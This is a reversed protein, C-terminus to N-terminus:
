FAVTHMRTIGVAAQVRAYAPQLLRCVLTMCCAAEQMGAYHLVCLAPICAAYSCIFVAYARVAAKM